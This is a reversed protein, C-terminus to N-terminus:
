RTGRESPSKGRAQHPGKKFEREPVESFAPDTTFSLKTAHGRSNRNPVPLGRKTAHGRSNSNPMRLGRKTAHGRSNPTLSECAVGQQMTGQTPTM